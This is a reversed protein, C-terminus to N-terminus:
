KASRLNSAILKGADSRNLGGPELTLTQVRLTDPLSAEAALSVAQEWRAFERSARTLHDPRNLFSRLVGADQDPLGHARDAWLGSARLLGTRALWPSVAVV